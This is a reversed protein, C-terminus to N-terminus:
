GNSSEVHGDEPRWANMPDACDAPHYTEDGLRLLFEGGEEHLHAGLQVAAHNDFRAPVRGGRVNCWLLGEPDICLSDVDLREEINGSLKLWPGDERLAFARVSYPPGEIEVFAWNINNQLCFRGDPARDIWADFSRCLGKHKLQEGDHFWRGKADRVITTERTFGKALMEAADM